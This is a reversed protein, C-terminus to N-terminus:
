EFVILASNGASFTLELSDTNVRSEEANQIVTVQYDDVFDLKIKQAHVTDYNVVYLATKGQYNIRAYYQGAPLPAGDETTLYFGKGQEIDNAGDELYWTVEDAAVDLGFTEKIYKVDVTLLRGGYKNYAPVDALTNDNEPSPTQVQVTIPDSEVVGCDTTVTYKLTVETVTGDIATNTLEEYTNGSLVYWTVDANPAYLAESAIHANVVADALTVDIANGCIAIIDDATIAPLSNM